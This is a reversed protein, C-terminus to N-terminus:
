RNVCDPCEFVDLDRSIIGVSRRVGYRALMVRQAQRISLGDRHCLRHALRVADGREQRTLPKARYLKGDVGRRLRTATM